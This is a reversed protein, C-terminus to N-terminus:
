FGESDVIINAPTESNTIINSPTESDTIINPETFRRGQIAIAEGVKAFPVYDALRICRVITPLTM